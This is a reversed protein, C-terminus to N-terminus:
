KEGWNNGPNNCSRVIRSHFLWTKTKRSCSDSGLGNRVSVTKNSPSHNHSRRTYANCVSRTNIQPNPNLCNHVKSARMPWLFSKTPCMQGAPKSHTVHEVSFSTSFCWLFWVNLVEMFRSWFHWIIFNWILFDLCHRRIIGERNHKVNFIVRSCYYTNIASNNETWGNLYM